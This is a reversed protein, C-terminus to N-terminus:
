NEHSLRRKMELYKMSALESPEGRRCFDLKALLRHPNEVMLKGDLVKSELSAVASKFSPDERAREYFSLVYCYYFLNYRLFPFETQMFLSGIGFYCPGVPRKVDWHRLLSEVAGKLRPDDMHKTFRFADLAELTVDPNSMDRFEGKGLGVKNCRWGGDNHQIDFLHEITKQLREDESHGTYCLARLATITHCPFITSKPAFKFRGDPRWAQFITNSLGEIEEDEPTFGLEPLIIAMDRSSFPSGKGIRHDPTTWHDGDLHNRKSLLFTIDASYKQKLSIM